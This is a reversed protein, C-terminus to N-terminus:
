RGRSRFRSAVSQAVPVPKYPRKGKILNMIVNIFRFTETQSLSFICTRLRSVLCAIKMSIWINPM